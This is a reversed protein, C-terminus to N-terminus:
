RGPSPTGPDAVRHDVSHPPPPPPGARGAGPPGLEVTVELGGLPSVGLVIHGGSAEATRRVIDLGLGTSGGGSAGRDLVVAGPPIGPGADSVTLVVGGAPTGCLRVAFATGEPTHAFVNGLLADVLAALDGASLGVPLLTTPVDTAVERSEEEALVQWFGIRDYVVSVADCMPGGSAVGRDTVGRRAEIIAQDVARELADVASTLRAAEDTTLAEAEIRLVTLPTRIRHSLDAVSERERTLLERIRGALANLTTGVESLEPVSAPRARADLDGDGLRRAVADLDHLSRVTSRALRDAVVLGLVLLGAGLLGLILWARTVGVRMQADSVYSRVVATGDPLGLAAILVERGGPAVATISRGQQALDVAPSRRVDDGLVTGDPLFVTVPVRSVDDASRLELTSALTSRDLTAVLPVVSEAERTAEGVARDAAVQQLLLGLPILFAALVLSTTAGVLLALRRRM